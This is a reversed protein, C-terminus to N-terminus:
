LLIKTLTANRPSVLQKDIVFTSYRFIKSIKNIRSGLETQEVTVTINNDLLLLFPLLLSMSEVINFSAHYVVNGRSSKWDTRRMIPSSNIFIAKAATVNHKTRNEVTLTVALNASHASFTAMLSGAGLAQGRCIVFTNLANYLLRQTRVVNVAVTAISNNHIYMLVTILGTYKSTAPDTKDVTPKHPDKNAATRVIATRQPFINKYDIM